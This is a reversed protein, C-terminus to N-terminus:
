QQTQQQQLIPLAEEFVDALAQSFGNSSGNHSRYLQQIDEITFTGKKVQDIVTQALDSPKQNEAM